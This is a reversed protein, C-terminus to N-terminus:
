EDCITSLREKLREESYVVGRLAGAYMNWVVERYGMYGDVVAERVHTVLVSVTRNDELYLRLKTVAARLDRECSEIFKAHLEEAASQRGWDQETLLPVPGPPHTPSTVTRSSNFARVRDVWERLPECPGKACLSILNQCARKLDQDIEQPFTLGNPSLDPHYQDYGVHRADTISEYGRPMGLSAFLADPLLATTRNFISTLADIM